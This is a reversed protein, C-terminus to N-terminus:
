TLSDVLTSQDRKKNEAKKVLTYSVVNDDYVLYQRLNNLHTGSLSQTDRACTREGREFMKSKAMEVQCM